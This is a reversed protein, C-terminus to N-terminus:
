VLRRGGTVHQLSYQAVLSGFGGGVLGGLVLVVLPIADVVEDGHVLLDVLSRHGVAPGSQDFVATQSGVMGLLYEGGVCVPWQAAFKGAHVTSSSAGLGRQGSEDGYSWQVVSSVHRNHEVLSDPREVVVWTWVGLHTPCLGVDEAEYRLGGPGDAVVQSLAEDLDLVPHALTGLFERLTGLAIVLRPECAESLPWGIRVTCTVPVRCGLGNGGVPPLEVKVPCLGESLSRSAWSLSGRQRTNLLHDRM